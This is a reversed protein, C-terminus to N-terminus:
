VQYVITYNNHYINLSSWIDENREGKALIIRYVYEHAFKGKSFLRSEFRRGFFDRRFPALQAKYLLFCDRGAGSSSIPVTVLDRARIPICSYPTWGRDREHPLRASARPTRSRFRRDEFTIRFSEPLMTRIRWHLDNVAITSIGERRNGEPTYDRGVMSRWRSRGKSRGPTRRYIILDDRLSALLPHHTSVAGNCSSARAVEGESRKKARASTFNRARKADGDLACLAASPIGLRLKRTGFAAVFSIDARYNEGCDRQLVSHMDAYRQAHRVICPRYSCNANESPNCSRPETFETFKLM